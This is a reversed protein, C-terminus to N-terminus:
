PAAGENLSVLFENEVIDFEQWARESHFLDRCPMWLGLRGRCPMPVVREVRGFQWAYGGNTEWPKLSERSVEPSALVGVLEVVAVIAGRQILPPLPLAFGYAEACAETTAHEPMTETAGAHLWLWGRYDTSWGRNEIRKPGHAVCHAWSPKLTLAKM